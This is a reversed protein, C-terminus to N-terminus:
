LLDDAADSTYLLCGGLKEIARNVERARMIRHKIALCDLTLRSFLLRHVFRIQNFGSPGPVLTPLSLRQQENKFEKRIDTGLRLSFSIAVILMRVALTFRSSTIVLPEGSM